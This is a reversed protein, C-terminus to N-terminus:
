GEAREAMEYARLDAVGRVTAAKGEVAMRTSELAEPDGTYLMGDYTRGKYLIGLAIAVLLLIIFGGITKEARSIDTRYFDRKNVTQSM